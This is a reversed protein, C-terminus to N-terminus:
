LRHRNKKPSQSWERVSCRCIQRRTQPRMLRAKKVMIKHPSTGVDSNPKMYGQIGREVTDDHLRQRQFLWVIYDRARM